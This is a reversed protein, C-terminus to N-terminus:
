HENPSKNIKIKEAVSLFFETSWVSLVSANVLFREVDAQAQAMDLQSIKKNLLRRFSADDLVIDHALHGSQKMRFELHALNLSIGQGVYWILDYWDRGKVRRQWDRCLVAHMKGAFLSPPNYVRVSFPIPQLLFRTEVQFYPPPDTDVEIRIRIARNAHIAGVINAGAEISLMIERTNAKLFASEVATDVTKQKVMISVPFGWANLEEEMFSCYPTLDFSGNKKLLSFDMDESYRDLGHLIRLATGGYFAAHEFFKARWLGYLSIEQLVERLANLHDDVSRLEYKALMAAVVNNMVTEENATLASFM